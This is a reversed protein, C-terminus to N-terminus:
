LEGTDGFPNYKCTDCRKKTEEKSKVQHYEEMAIIISKYLYNYDHHKTKPTIGRKKLIEQKQSYM